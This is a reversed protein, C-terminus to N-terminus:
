SWGLARDERLDLLGVLFGATAPGATEEQGLDDLLLVDARSWRKVQIEATSREFSDFLARGRVVATLEPATALEVWRGSKTLERAAARLLHTKGCGTNTELTAPRLLALKAPRGDRCAATWSRAAGLAAPERFREFSEFTQVGPVRGARGEARRAQWGPCRAYATGAGGDPRVHWGGFCTHGPPLDCPEPEPAMALADRENGM